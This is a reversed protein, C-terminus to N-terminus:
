VVNDFLSHFTYRNSCRGMHLGKTGAHAPSENGIPELTGLNFYVSYWLQESTRWPDAIFSKRWLASTITYWRRIMSVHRELITLMFMAGCITTSDTCSWMWEGGGPKMHGGVCHVRPRTKWGRSRLRKQCKNKTCESSSLPDASMVMAVSFMHEGQKSNADAKKFFM